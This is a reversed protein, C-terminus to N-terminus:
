QLLFLTRRGLLQDSVGNQGMERFFILLLPALFTSLWAEGFRSKLVWSSITDYLFDEQRLRPHFSARTPDHHGTIHFSLALNQVLNRDRGSPQDKQGWVEHVM